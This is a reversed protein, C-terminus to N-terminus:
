EAPRGLHQRIIRVLERADTPKTLYADVGADFGRIRDIREGRSTVMLIPVDRYEPLARLRRTLEYGDMNPMVVDTSVLDFREQMAQRLGESGDPVAVVHYGAMELNRRISERIVDSDEVVLISAQSQPEPERPATPAGPAAPSLQSMTILQPIDLIVACREGLLTAGAAGPVRELLSGLTKIVIEQRGLFGDCALGYTRGGVQVLAIPQLDPLDAHHRDLGLLHRLRLLPIERGGDLLTEQNSLLRLQKTPVSVTREVLDIPVAYTESACRVLLVQIIALTLPLRLEVRTGAGAKSELHVTGKLQSIRDRVVDMGVGRGSLDSVQEATSFGPQFLLAITQAEDLEAATAEDVLGKDIAKERVRQPDIGKGDDEIHIVIQNGRHFAALELSGEAPKGTAAREAATEIGHDIANRVLHLMPDDLQEVLVKDLETDTGSLTLRVEKGLQQAIQRVTRHYKSWTRGIPVMRLKMVQDRLQGSVFDLHQLDADVEQHLQELARHIRGLETAVGQSRVAGRKPRTERRRYRGTGSQRRQESLERGLAAFDGVHTSLQGKALVLEGVLNMLEDLKSFDIRLTHQRLAPAPTAELMPSAPAVRPAPATPAAGLAQSRLQAVTARTDIDIPARISARQVIQTLVDLTSLLTDILPRDAQRSGDRVMGVLDEAAHALQNMKTLGVFGSSGKLTHLDRFIGHVLEQDQPRRELEVLRESLGSLREQCEELCPAIMDADVNPQWLEGDDPTTEPARPPPREAPRTVGLAARCQELAAADLKAGSPDPGGLTDFARRLQQLAEQVAAGAGAHSDGRQAASELHDRLAATLAVVPALEMVAADLEVAMLAQLAASREADSLPAVSLQEDATDVGAAAEALFQQWRADNM